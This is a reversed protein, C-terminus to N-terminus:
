WRCRGHFRHGSGRYGVIVRHRPVCVRHGVVPSPVAVREYIVSVVPEACRVMPLRYKISKSKQALPIEQGRYVVSGNLRLRHPWKVSDEPLSLTATHEYEVEDHDAETPSDLAIVYDIREGEDNVLTRDDESVYLVLDFADGPAPHEIEVDYRVELLWEDEGRVLEGKLSEIDVDPRRHDRDDDDDDALLTSGAILPAILMGFVALFPTKKM